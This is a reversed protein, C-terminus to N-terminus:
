ELLGLRGVLAVVDEHALEVHVADMGAAHAGEVHQTSDDIFLTREGKANHRALVHHFTEASPKRMGLECSYYAGHFLGKFDTIGNEKAVIAEFAQVHIANTNSLLLVQYRRKLREVLAIREPPVSGLMANWCRDIEPDSLAVKSLHRVRDRFQALSLRGTEFDDFLHDQKAKSYLADFDPFGLAQFARVSANYDVDILVGGLDLILTDYAKRREM